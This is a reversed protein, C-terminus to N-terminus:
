MKRRSLRLEKPKSFWRVEAFVEEESDALSLFIALVLGVGLTEGDPDSEELFIKVFSGVEIRLDGCVVARFFQRRFRDVALLEGEPVPKVHISAEREESADDPAASSVPNLDVDRHHSSAVHPSLTTLLFEKAASWM